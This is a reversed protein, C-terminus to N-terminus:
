RRLQRSPIYIFAKNKIYFIFLKKLLMYLM